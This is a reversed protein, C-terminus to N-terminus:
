SYNLSIIGSYVGSERQRNSYKISDYRVELIKTNEDFYILVPYRYDVQDYEEGEFCTKQLVFKV